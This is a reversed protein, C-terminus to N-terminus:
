EQSILMAKHYIEKTLPIVCIIITISVIVAAWADCVSGSVSTTDSVVAAIFVACTRLTDGGVHTFASIMNLNKEQPKEDPSPIRKMALLNSGLINSGEAEPDKEDISSSSSREQDTLLPIYLFVVKRRVYFLYASIVDVIFNASAFGYLFYVDLDDDAGNSKIVEVADSTIYATVGLLACISFCPIGVELIIKTRSSLKEGKSKLWEAYMNTFYTFVDVSMAAADGLLSLSNSALAGIIEACVFLAFGITTIMLTRQNNLQVM